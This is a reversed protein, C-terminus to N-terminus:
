DIAALFEAILGVIREPQEKHPMHWADAIIEVRKQGRGLKGIREPHAASGYEDHQGHIVLLPCNIVLEGQELSWDAFEPHLWTEIWADLVWRAKAGHYKELRSVQQPDAFQQQAIRIGHLTKDEPFAQAAMTILAACEEGATAACHVAMGGGVSHGLLAFRRLGLHQRLLPFFSRAEDTIFDLALPENRPDSRGFGLRDYAIVERGSAACLQAPFDRWLEVCGLSDHLLVIPAAAAKPTVPRWHRVFLRGQPSSVWNDSVAIQEM